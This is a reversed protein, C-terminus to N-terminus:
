AQSVEEFKFDFPPPKPANEPVKEVKPLVAPKAAAKRSRFLRRKLIEKKLLQIAKAPDVGKPCVYSCSGAFHCRWVGHSDDLVDLREDIGEDRPDAVYRYAQALAQPGLFLPDLAMTPCAADCLGCMICYDFQIFSLNQQPTVLFESSADELEEPNKRIMWPKVSRHKEVFDTLDVVLDRIVPFNYLPEVRIVDTKLDLVRTQCALSPKGNIVMGCSGCSGMQCSHRFALTHDQRERIKLLLDLVTDRERAEVEYEQWWSRVGDFRRVRVKM